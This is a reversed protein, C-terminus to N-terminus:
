RKHASKTHPTHHKENHADISAQADQLDYYVSISWEEACEDCIWVWCGEGSSLTIQAPM